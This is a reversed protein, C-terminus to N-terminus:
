ISIQWTRRAMPIIDVYIRSPRFLLFSSITSRGWTATLAVPKAPSRTQLSLIAAIRGSSGALLLLLWGLLLGIPLSGVDGLFLKEVLRNFFAFGITAGCLALSIVTDQWPFYGLLGIAALATTIPVVEVVTMWDLGPKPSTMDFRMM